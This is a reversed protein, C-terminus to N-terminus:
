ARASRRGRCTPLRLELLLDDGITRDGLGIAESKNSRAVPLADKTLAHCADLLTTADRADVIGGVKHGTVALRPSIGRVGFSQVAVVTEQECRADVM